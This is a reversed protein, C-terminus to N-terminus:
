GCSSEPPCRWRTPMARASETTARLQQDGVLRDRREVDRHLRRDEVQEAVELALMPKEHRKMVCSRAVTSYRQSRTATIYRPVSRRSPASPPAAERRGCCGYVCASSEAATTGSGPRAARASLADDQSPSMGLGIAGGDPQRKRVRHGRACSDAGRRPPPRAATSRHRRRGGRRRGGRGVPHVHAPASRCPLTARQAERRARLQAARESHDRRRM